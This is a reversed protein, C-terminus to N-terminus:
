VRIGAHKAAEELAETDGQEYLSLANKLEREISEELEREQLTQIVRKALSPQPEPTPEVPRTAKGMGVILVEGSPIKHRVHARSVISTNRGTEQLIDAIDDPKPEGIADYSIAILPIHAAANVLDELLRVVEDKTTVDHRVRFEELSQNGSRVDYWDTVMGEIFWYTAWYHPNSRSTVYPPDCYLAAVPAKWRATDKVATPGDAFYARNEQGNSFVLANIKEVLGRFLDFFETENRLRTAPKSTSFNSHAKASLIARGLAVLAIARTSLSTWEKADAYRINYRIRDIAKLLFQPLYKGEFTKQHFDDYANANGTLLWDVADKALRVTGNEIVAMCSYYPYLQTDISVVPRNELKMRYSVSGLGSCVDLIYGPKCRPLIEGAIWDALYVKTGEYGGLSQRFRTVWENM